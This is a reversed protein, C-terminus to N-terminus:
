QIQDIEADVAGILSGSRAWYHSPFEEQQLLAQGEGPALLVFCTAGSGSMFAPGYTSLRDLLLKVEPNLSCAPAMLSNGRAQMFAHLESLTEIRESFGVEGGLYPRAALAKFVDRTSLAFGPNVAVIDAEPLLPVPVLDHGIGTMWKPRADLCVPVDAGLLPAIDRLLLPDLDFLRTLGQLCCAANASGGGIGSAIPLNKELKISVNLARGVKEEFLQHADLILNGPLKALVDGFPGSFSLETKDSKEFELVDGFSAFAVLSELVHYGDARKGLVDLTLNIKAPAFLSLTSM